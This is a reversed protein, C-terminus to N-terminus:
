FPISTGQDCDGFLQDELNNVYVTPLNSIYKNIQVEEGPKEEIDTLFDNGTGCGYLYINNKIDMGKVANVFYNLTGDGGVLVVEDEPQLNSLYEPYDIGIADILEVGSGVEPKIGNNSLSNYLYYKM